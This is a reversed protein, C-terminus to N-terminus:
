WCFIVRINAWSMLSVRCMHVMFIPCVVFIDKWFCLLMVWMVPKEKSQIFVAVLFFFMKRTERIIYLVNVLENVM